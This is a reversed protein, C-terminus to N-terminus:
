LENWNRGAFKLRERLHLPPIGYRGRVLDIDTAREGVRQIEEKLGEYEAEWIQWHKLSKRLQAIKQELLERQQALSTLSAEM